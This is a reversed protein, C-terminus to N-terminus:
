LNPKIMTTLQGIFQLRKHHPTRTPTNTSLPGWNSPSVLSSPPLPSAFGPGLPPCTFGLVAWCFLPSDTILFITESNFPSDYENLYAHPEWRNRLQFAFWVWEPVRPTRMQCIHRMWTVWHGMKYLPLQLHLRNIITLMYSTTVIHIVSCHYQNSFHRCINTRWNVHHTFFNHCWHSDSPSTLQCPSLLPM